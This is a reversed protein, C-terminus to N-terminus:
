TRRSKTGSSELGFVTDSVNRINKIKANPDTNYKWYKKLFKFHYKFIVKFM